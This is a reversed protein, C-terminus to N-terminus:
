AHVRVQEYLFEPAIDAGNPWAITGYEALTVERFRQLDKLPEFVPGWLEGALDIEGETGDEFKVWVVYDHVYKAATVNYYMATKELPEIPLLQEGARARLWNASLEDRHLHWWELLLAVVRRPLDGQVAGNIGIVPM